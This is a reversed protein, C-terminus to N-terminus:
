VGLALGVTRPDAAGLLADGPASLRLVQQASRLGWRGTRTVRPAVQTLAEVDSASLGEEVCVGDDDPLWEWRPSTVLLGPDWCGSVVQGLLQANWPMQNAGGPTAGLLRVTGTVDAV